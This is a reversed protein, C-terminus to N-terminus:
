RNVLKMSQVERVRATHPEQLAHLVTRGHSQWLANLNLWERSTVSLSITKVFLIDFLPIFSYISLSLIRGDPGCGRNIQKGTLTETTAEIV